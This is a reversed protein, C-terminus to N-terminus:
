IIYLNVFEMNESYTEFIIEKTLPDEAFSFLNKDPATGNMLFKYPEYDCASLSPDIPQEIAIQLTDAAIPYTQNRIQPMSVGCVTVEFM